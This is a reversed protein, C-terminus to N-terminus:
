AERSLVMDLLNKCHIADNLADPNNNNTDVTVSWSLRDMHNEQEETLTKLREHNSSVLRKFANKQQSTWGHQSINLGPNHWM